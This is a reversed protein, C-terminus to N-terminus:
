RNIRTKIENVHANGAPAQSDHNATEGMTLDENFAAGVSAATAM